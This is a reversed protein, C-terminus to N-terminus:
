DHFELGLIAAFIGNARLLDASYSDREAASEDFGIFGLGVLPEDIAELETEIEEVFGQLADSEALRGAEDQSDLKKQVAIVPKYVNAFGRRSRRDASRVGTFVSVQVTKLLPDDVKVIPVTRRRAEFQMSYDTATNLLTVIADALDIAKSM